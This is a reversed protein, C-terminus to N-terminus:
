EGKEIVEINEKGFLEIVNQEIEDETIEDKKKEEAYRVIESAKAGRFSKGIAIYYIAELLNTKGQANDGYLINVEPAFSVEAREINRFDKVRIENCIM